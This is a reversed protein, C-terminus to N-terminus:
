NSVQMSKILKELEDSSVIDSSDSQTINKASSALNYESSDINNRECVYNVVREIRQRHLDQHQLFGFSDSILEKIKRTQHLPINLTSIINDINELNDYISISDHESEKIVECLDKILKEYTM